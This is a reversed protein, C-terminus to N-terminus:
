SHEESDVGLFVALFPVNRVNTPGRSSFLRLLMRFQRMKHGEVSGTAFM